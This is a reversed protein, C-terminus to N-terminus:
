IKISKSKEVKPQIYIAYHAEMYILGEYTCKDAEKCLEEISKMKKRLDKM